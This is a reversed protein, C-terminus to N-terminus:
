MVRWVQIRESICWENGGYVVFSSYSHLSRLDLRPLRVDSVNMAPGCRLLIDCTECVTLMSAKANVLIAQSRYYRKSLTIGAM